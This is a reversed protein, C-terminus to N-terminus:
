NLNTDFFILNIYYFKRFCYLFPTKSPMYRRFTAKICPASCDFILFHAHLNVM